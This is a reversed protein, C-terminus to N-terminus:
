TDNNFIKSVATLLDFQGYSFIDSPLKDLKKDIRENLRKTVSYPTNLFDEYSWRYYGGVKDYLDLMYDLFDREKTNEEEWQRAARDFPDEYEEFSPPTFEVAKRLEEKIILKDKNYYRTLKEPTDEM